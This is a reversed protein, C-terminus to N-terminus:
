VIRDGYRIIKLAVIEFEENKVFFTYDPKPVVFFTYDPEFSAAIREALVKPNKFLGKRAVAVVIAPVESYYRMPKQAVWAYKLDAHQRLCDVLKGLTEESLDAKRFTDKSSLTEREAKSAHDIRAQREAQDLWWQAEDTRDKATLYHYAYKSAEIVLAPSALAKKMYQLFTEDEKACLFQGLKFAVDPDDPQRSEYSRYLVFAEDGLGFEESLQALEWLEQDNLESENRSGLDSITQKAEKAYEYRAKWRDTNSALWGADFDGIIRDYQDGLWAQAASEASADPVIPEVNLAEIRDRLCPHTDELGTEEELEQKLREALDDQTGMHAGVFRSLGMWPPEVPEPNSDALRSFETWYNQEVYPATVHSNILAASIDASSTLGAAIADAEYENSRALVFSYAAFRPAYWDFFRRMMRAGFSDQGHFAYMIRYWTQRIRYIWGNFQSHNGSLHGFEHAVVARAQAPSLTLLLELGLVLTNKQWGFIGLRPTRSVAANLEPTLIVQHIKMADLASRLSEIEAFLRPCDAATIRYGTPPELKVWVSRFLIWIAPILLFVLKKSLLIILLAPSYISVAVIGSVLGILIALIVFIVTYGFLAFLAVRFKYVSLSREAARQADEVLREFGGGNSDEGMM